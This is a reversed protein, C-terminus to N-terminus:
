IINDAPPPLSLSFPPPPSLSLPRPAAPKLARTKQPTKLLCHGNRRDRGEGRSRKAETKTFSDVKGDYKFGWQVGKGKRMM